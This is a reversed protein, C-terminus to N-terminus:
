NILLYASVYVKTCLIVFPPDFGVQAIPDHGRTCYHHLRNKLWHFREECSASRSACFHFNEFFAHGFIQSVTQIYKLVILHVFVAHIWKWRAYTCATHLWRLWRWYVSVASNQVFYSTLHQAQQASCQGNLAASLTQWAVLLLLNFLSFHARM